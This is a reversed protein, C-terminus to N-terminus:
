IDLLFPINLYLMAYRHQPIGHLQKFFTMFTFSRYHFPTQCLNKLSFPLGSILIYLVIFYPIPTFAWSFLQLIQVLGWNTSEVPLPNPNPPQSHISMKMAPLETQYFCGHHPTSSIRGTCSLFQIKITIKISKFVLM